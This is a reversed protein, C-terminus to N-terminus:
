WESGTHFPDRADTGWHTPRFGPSFSRDGRPAFGESRTFPLLSPTARAPVPAEPASYYSRRVEVPVDLSVLTQRGARVVADQELIITKGARIFEAKLTYHFSKEAALPPSVFVRDTSTSQTAHGDVTLKADAPLTVRLVAPAPTMPAASLHGVSLVVATLATAGISAFTRSFM